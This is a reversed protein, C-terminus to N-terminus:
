HEKLPLFLDAATVSYLVDVSYENKTLGYPTIWTAIGGNRNKTEKLFSSIRNRVKLDEAADILYESQSYKIECINILRDAREIIMDIQNTPNQRSRWSYYEVAIRDLGLAHRIQNIHLMCVHEFALGSWTNITPTNLHQQWYDDTTIKKSFTLHFLSFLDILQYYADNFKPKGNIKTAYQRIIHCNVLNELQKSLTGSSPVKLAAAIENRTMGQKNKNLTEVIELYPEPTKFLSAYLRRYENSLESDKAFYINDINQALSKQNDLLSLYYPIGGLMMYTEIIMQRPWRIGRSKMYLETEYLNFQRLCITRTIRNHLGGHNDIINDIMWSTASGCVILIVKKKLSAWTNWFYGLARVFGSKQTDFCPLEDIYIVCRGSSQQKDLTQALASFAQLWNEPMKGTYGANILSRTFAFLQEEKTGDIIGSTSFAFKKDFYQQILYTKGVRRRGYVAIFEAKGSKEIKKLQTIENERGVFNTEM